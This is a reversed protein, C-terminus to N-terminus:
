GASQLLLVSGPDPQLRRGLLVVLGSTGSGPPTLFASVNSRTQGFLWICFQGFFFFTLCSLSKPKSKYIKFFLKNPKMESPQGSKRYAPRPIMQLDHQSRDAWRGETSLGDDDVDEEERNDEEEDKDGVVDGDVGDDDDDDDDGNSPWAPKPRGM